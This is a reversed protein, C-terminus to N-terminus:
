PQTYKRFLNLLKYYVRYRISYHKTFQKIIEPELKLDKPFCFTTNNTKDLVTRYRGAVENTHTAGAGFGNNQVKSVVPVVTYSQQKFQQYCWRIAWSDMKGAMQRDLMEALDSGMQNFKRREKGNRKFDDYDKVEWDVKNWRDKWTAWGWSSSRLTFYVSNAPAGTIPFSFGSVSFVNMKEYYQLAQNMYSLFNGSTILDDELVIVRDYRQFMKSVGAIISNALGSNESAEFVEVSKFGRITKLFSRVQQIESIDEQKKAGDSFVFLESEEALLNGQLAAVTQKLAALRKYSFLLIPAPQTIM